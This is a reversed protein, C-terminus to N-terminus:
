PKAKTRHRIPQQEDAPGSHELAADRIFDTLRTGAREAALAVRRFQERNFRVTVAAGRKEPPAPEVLEANEWDWQDEDEELARLEEETWKSM